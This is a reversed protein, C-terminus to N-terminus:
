ASRRNLRDWRGQCDVCRTAEPRFRLRETPIKTGCDECIGYKGEALRSLAREVQERNEALLQLLRDNVDRDSMIQAFDTDEYDRTLVGGMSEAISRNLGAEDQFRSALRALEARNAELRVIRENREQDKENM